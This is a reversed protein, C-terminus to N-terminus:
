FNYQVLADVRNAQGRQENLNDREGWLYEVGLSLNRIPIYWLSAGLYKGGTYTTGPQGGLGGVNTGSYTFNSLWKETYWQEYAIVFATESPLSFSGTVPDVVGDLGLGATDLFYRGIGKGVSYQGVIRCRELATPNDRLVPNSGILYAWPHFTTSASLGFAARRTTDEDTPRYGIARALGSLQFHGFDGEYRLHTAFDPVDQVNTGQGNTTIDSFPQEVAAAWYWEDSLPATVRAGPRRQNVWGAPGQFDVLSPWSSADMFVTNQQGVRFYGYDVFAHRLRFPNGGGGVAQDAGNFFDAEVFTHLTWENLPTPTWTEVAIRSMRASMNYNEGQGQPVPITNPVFSDRSGIPNFDYLGMLRVFGRLRFSTDTGPVLFSGPFIGRTVFRDREAPTVPTPPTIPTFEPTGPGVQQDRAEYGPPAYEEVSRPSVVPQAYYDPWYFYPPLLASNPHFVEPVGPADQIGRLFVRPPAYESIPPQLEPHPLYLQPPAAPIPNEPGPTNALLWRDPFVKPLSWGDLPDAPRSPQVAPGPSTYWGDPFVTSVGRTEPAAAKAPQPPPPTQGHAQDSRGPAVLAVATLSVFVATTFPASKM